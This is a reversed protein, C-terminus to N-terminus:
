ITEKEKKIELVEVDEGSYKLILYEKKTKTDKICLLHLFTGSGLRQDEILQFREPVVVKQEKPTDDVACGVLIFMGICLGIIIIKLSTVTIKM